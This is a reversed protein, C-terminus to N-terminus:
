NTPAPRARVEGGGVDVGKLGARTWQYYSTVLQTAQGNLPLSEWSNLGGDPTYMVRTFQTMNTPNPPYFGKNCDGTRVTRVSGDFFLIPARSSEYAYFQQRKAFHRSQGDFYLVKQATFSVDGLKRTGLNTATTVYRNHEGGIPQYVGDGSDAPAFAAPVIQYSSSFPWRRVEPGTGTPREIPAIFASEFNEYNDQWRLRLRDETCAVMREPLRQQLYANLVLHSYLIHPIWAAPPNQFHNPNGTLEKLINWAQEAAGAVGSGETFSAIRDQFDSAYGNVAIGFQRLNSECQVRRGVKRAEAIAPLLIGVLLALIAIVVLLEILTFARPVASRHRLKM